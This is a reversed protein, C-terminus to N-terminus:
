DGQEQHFVPFGNADWYLARARAHRNPDTLPNGRLDKYNRAHYIMLNTKGDEALVFSNHGPGYRGVTANTTFVPTPNKHWSKADLLNSDPDAWLLGMAYREDTASASYTVFVRGNHEIVAPGENVKYGQIEWDLAPESLKVVPGTISTPSDMEAIWLASNYSRAQDQQAWILYRKGNHAFTTADLSFSDWPTKIRGEAKWNGQTPDPNPNSLVYMRINGPQNAIGAAFYIYWVNDIRHLEPAWITDSMPGTANKRWIIKPVAIKLDNLECAQRIALYDFKPATAIMNYCGTSADRYIFPDAAQPVIPNDINLNDNAQANSFSLMLVPLLKVALSCTRRLIPM